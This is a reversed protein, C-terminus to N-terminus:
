RKVGEEIVVDARKYVSAMSRKIYPRPPVYGGTGTGHGTEILRAVPIRSQPHADNYWSVDHIGRNSTITYKWGSATEGTDMPTNARLQRIGDEGVTALTSRVNVPDSVKKLWKEVADFSGKSEFTVIVYLM